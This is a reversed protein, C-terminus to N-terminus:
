TRYGGGTFEEMASKRNMNIFGREWVEFCVASGNYLAAAGFAMETVAESM